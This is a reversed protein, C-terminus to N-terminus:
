GRGPKTATYKILGHLIKSKTGVMVFIARGKLHRRVLIIQTSSTERSLTLLVGGAEMELQEIKDDVLDSLSRM